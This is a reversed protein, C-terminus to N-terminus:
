LDIRCRGAIAESGNNDEVCENLQGVGAGGDDVRATIRYRFERGLSSVRLEVREAAGALLARTTRVTGLLGATDDYFSVEVGPGVGLCGANVVWVAVDLEPCMVAQTIARLQLDPACFNTTGQVNRRYSNYPAGAPTRWSPPERRPIEGVPGVNTIHYSHQNWVPRTAVWNDLRDRWVELGADGIFAPDLFDAENNTAFVIEAKFDGDVDAIVPYETRTRSSNLDRFLIEADTMVGDCGPGPPSLRCDPEVGPYIRVFEEDNYIVEARGDGDFDFVSSGTRSSSDDETPAEWLRQLQGQDDLRVVVYRSAGATGIDPRGDGDFDAINPAGGHGGGPIVFRALERGTEGSLVYITGQAVLVVEPRLDGMLNAVGCYGDPTAASWLTRFSWRAGTSTLTYVSRGAVLETRGDLDLDALCSIPGQGGHGRGEAGEWLLRGHRDFVAAGHVIEALGDGDLDAIASAGSGNPGQFAESRWLPRGDAAFAVLWKGEGEVVIEPRGDGDLDGIAPNATSNTRHNASTATWVKAGDDGRIARLVGDRTFNMGAYSNFVIEPVCDRDLDVVMPISTVQHYDPLDDAAPSVHPWTVACVGAECREAKQCDSTSTCTRMRRQGWTFLPVPDFVGVPPRYECSQDARNPLCRGLGPDCFSGPPCTSEAPRTACGDATCANGPRVCQDLYCVEDTGCCTDSPGCPPEGGCDRRCVGGVCLQDAGCCTEDCHKDPACCLTEALCTEGGGCCVGSPGCRPTDCPAVCADQFCVQDAGCCTGGCPPEGTTTCLAARPVCVDAECREDATCCTEGCSPAPCDPSRCVGGTCDLGPGCPRAADCAAGLVGGGGADGGGGGPTDETCAAAGEVLALLALLALRRNM